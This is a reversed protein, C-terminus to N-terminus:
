YNYDFRRSLVLNSRLTLDLDQEPNVVVVEAKDKRLLVSAVAGAGAGLIPELAQIRRDGTILAIVSAAGAGIAADKWISSTNTKSITEKRTIIQSTANIYQREGNPFLLEQAIFQTGKERNRRAPEMQGVVKTGEPILVDGSRSVINRPIELTIPAKEDPTVIIKDKEYAVPIRVGAPISVNRGYYQDYQDNQQRQGRFITQANAPFLTFMPVIAGTTIALAMFAATGSKWFYFRTMSYLGEM